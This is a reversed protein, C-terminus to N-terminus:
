GNIFVEGLKVRDQDSKGYGIHLIEEGYLPLQMALSWQREKVSEVSEYSFVHRNRSFELRGKGEGVFCLSRMDRVVQEEVPLSPM